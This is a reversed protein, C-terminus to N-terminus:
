QQHSSQRLQIATVAVVISIGGAIQLLTLTQGFWLWALIAAVFPELTAVIAAREARVRQISWFFLLYPLLNGVIGVLLVKPFRDSSLLSLPLGQTFQYALWFLSAVAYTRLLISISEGTGVLQESLIIYTAFFIATTLGIGIGFWNVQGLNSELIKSVLVVGLISLILALLVFRSPTRRTTVATWLVVLIPSTFLLVIAVAVPLQQIAVYDAAVLFVLVLGLVFQKLNMPKIQGRGWFSNLIALGFTAITASVGALELPHIGTTFLDFAVNAAVAWCLVTLLIAVLGLSSSSLSKLQAPPIDLM